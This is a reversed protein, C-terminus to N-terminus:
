VWGAASQTTRGLRKVLTFKDATVLCLRDPERVSAIQIDWHCAFGLCTPHMHYKVTAFLVCSIWLDAVCNVIVAAVIFTLVRVFDNHNEWLSATDSIAAVIQTRTTLPNPVN